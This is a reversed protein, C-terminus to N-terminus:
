LGNAYRWVTAPAYQPYSDNIQTITRGKLFLARMGNREEETVRTRPIKIGHEETIKTITSISVGLTRAMTVKSMNKANDRVFKIFEQKQALPEDRKRVGLQSARIRVANPTRNLHEAIREVPIEKWNAILYQNDKNTWNM